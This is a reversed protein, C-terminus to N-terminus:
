SHLFLLDSTKQVINLFDFFFKKSSAMSNRRACPKEVCRSMQTLVFLIAVYKRAIFGLRCCKTSSQVWQSPNHCGEMRINKWSKNLKNNCIFLVVFNCPIHCHTKILVSAKVKHNAVGFAITISLLLVLAFILTVYFIKERRQYPNQQKTPNTAGSFFINNRFFSGILFTQFLGCTGFWYKLWQQCFMYCQM